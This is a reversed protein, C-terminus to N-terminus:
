GLAQGHDLILIRACSTDNSPLCHSARYRQPTPIALKNKWRFLPRSFFHPGACHRARFVRLSFENLHKNLKRSQERGKQRTM